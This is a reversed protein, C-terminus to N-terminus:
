AMEGEVIALAEAFDTISKEKMVQNVRDNIAASDEDVVFKQNFDETGPTREAARGRTAHEDFLKHSKRADLMAVTKDYPSQDGEAFNATAGALAKSVLDEAFFDKEAPLMKGETVLRDCFNEVEKRINATTLASVSTNLADITSQQKEVMSKLTDRESKVQAFDSTLQELQEKLQMDDDKNISNSQQTFDSKEDGTTTKLEDIYYQPILLDAAEVGEKEIFWDRISQILNGVTRFRWASDWEMFSDFEIAGDTDSFDVTGLGSVAPQAAGLWGVHRLLGNPYFSASRFKYSGKRIADVFDDAFQDTGAMMFQGERKLKAVWGYSQDHNNPHGIVHPAVRREAEAQENYLEIRRDLEADSITHEKGSSDNFTGTRFIPIWKMACIKHLSDKCVVYGHETCPCIRRLEHM